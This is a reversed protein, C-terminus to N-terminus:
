GADWAQDELIFLEESCSQDRTKKLRFSGNSWLKHRFLNGDLGGGREFRGIIQNIEGKLRFGCCKNIIEQMFQCLDVSNLIIIATRQMLM